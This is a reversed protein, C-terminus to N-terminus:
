WGQDPLVSALVPAVSTDPWDAEAFFQTGGPPFYQGWDQTLLFAGQHTRSQDTFVMHPHVRNSQTDLKCKLIM